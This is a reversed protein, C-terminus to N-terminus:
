RTGGATPYVAVLTRDDDFRERSFDLAHALHIPSPPGAELVDRFLAGVVGEGNGLPDGFGDTGTLLVEGPRITLAESHVQDVVTPLATTAHSILGDSATKADNLSFFRGQSLIWCGSDGVRVVRASLTGSGDGVPEVVMVVLTTAFAAAADPDADPLGLTQAATAVLGFNVNALLNQFDMEALPIQRARDLWDLAYRCVAAAGVHAFEASSVGDAVCVTVRGSNESVLMEDQRPAGNFRHLHGRMSAARVAIDPIDWGDIVTDARYPSRRYSASVPVTTVVPSPPGAAIQVRSDFRSDDALPLARTQDGDRHPVPAPASVPAAPPEERPGTQVLDGLSSERDAHSPTVGLTEPAAGDGPEGDRIKRRRGRIGAM